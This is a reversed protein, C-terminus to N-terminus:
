HSKKRIVILTAAVIVIVAIVAIVAVEPFWSSSSNISAASYDSPSPTLQLDQTSNNPDATPNSTSDPSTSSTPSTTPIPTPTATPTPSTTPESFTTPSPSPTPTDTPTSTPTPSPTPTPAIPVDPNPADLIPLYNIYSACSADDNKDYIMSDIISTDTTGWYNQSADMDATTSGKEVELIVGATNTFSNNYVYTKSLGYSAYNNIIYGQNNTFLNCKVYVFGQSSASYDYTGIKIGATNTFTNFEIYTDQSPYWLYSNQSLNSLESNTLNFSGINDFWFASQGNRIICYDLDVFGSAIPHNTKFFNCNGNGDFIIKNMATGHAKIVGNVLFMTGSFQATVTVGPEITLIFNEQILVTSTIVYPSNAATWTANSTLTGGVETGADGFALLKNSPLVTSLTLFASTIM